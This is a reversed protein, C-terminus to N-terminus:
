PLASALEKPMVSKVDEWEGDTIYHRLAQLVTKVLQETGGQIEYPLSAQVRRIFADRNMRIPVESPNWGTYYIGRVLMPLQASLQAAENVPLRDRLAHLVARLAAYSQNRRERPWGYIEEIERLIRNTKDETTKFSSFSTESM